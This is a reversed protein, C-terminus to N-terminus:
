KIGQPRCSPPCSSFVTWTHAHNRSAALSSRRLGHLYATEDKAEGGEQSAAEEEEEEVMWSNGIIRSCLVDAAHLLSDRSVSLVRTDSRIERVTASTGRYFEGGLDVDDEGDEGDEGGGPRSARDLYYKLPVKLKAAITFMEVGPSLGRGRAGAIQM